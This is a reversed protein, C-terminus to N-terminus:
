RRHWFYKEYLLQTPKLPKLKIKTSGCRRLDSLLVIMLAVYPLSFTMPLLPSEEEQLIGDRPEVM